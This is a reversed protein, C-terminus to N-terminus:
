RACRRLTFSRPEDTGLSKAGRYDAARHDCRAQAGRETRLWWSLECRRWERAVPDNRGDAAFGVGTLNHLQDGAPQELLSVLALFKHESALNTFRPQWFQGPRGDNTQRINIDIPM